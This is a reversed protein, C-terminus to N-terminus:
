GRTEIFYHEKLGLVRQENNRNLSILVRISDPSYTRCLALSIEEYVPVNSKPVLTNNEVLRNAYLKIIKLFDEVTTNRPRGRAM